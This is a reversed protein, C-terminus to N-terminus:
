MPIFASIIETPVSNSKPWVTLVSVVMMARSSEASPISRSKEQVTPSLASRRRAANRSASERLSTTIVVPPSPGVPSSRVLSVMASAAPTSSTKCSSLRWRM